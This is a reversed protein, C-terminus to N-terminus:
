VLLPLVKTNTGLKEPTPPPLSEIGGVTVMLLGAVVWSVVPPNTGLMVTLASATLQVNWVRFTVAEVEDDELLIVDLAPVNASM